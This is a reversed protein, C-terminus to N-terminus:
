QESPKELFVRSAEGTSRIGMLYIADIKGSILTLISFIAVIGAVIAFILIRNRVRNNKYTETALKNILKKNKNTMIKGAIKVAKIEKSAHQAGIPCLM